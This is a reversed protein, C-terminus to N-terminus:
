RQSPSQQSGGGTSDRTGLSEPEGIRTGRLGQSLATGHRLLMHGRGDSVDVLRSGGMEEGHTRGVHVHGGARLHLLDLEGAAM